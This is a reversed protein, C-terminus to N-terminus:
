LSATVTMRRSDNVLLERWHKDPQYEPALKWMEAIAAVDDRQEVTRRLNDIAWELDDQSSSSGRFIKIKEHFTPMADEAELSLEENLKEGPRLGVFRIEIDEDPEHGSLRIMNAALDAIKVPQGMDLVFIESGKGMTSAQLVLEVAENTTMFYRKIEPHTVTVPGGAAIQQKFIPIVSGNSGLVNGFRVAVFKTGTGEEPVPRSAIILEAIRKTLGMINTPNVAKDSSIMVFHSVGGRTAADVLNWTGLINNKIAELPHAEMMPVHKYAAAHFIYEVRNKSIIEDVRTKDRIDAIELHLNLNPYRGTLELEIRFLDSEAQDVTVLRAPEFRAIQRCLESGISGGAGTVMVVKDRLFASISSFDLHVQNRGLLDELSVDRIQTMLVKGSILEGMGPVTKFPIGAMRCNSVADQMERGSASPMAILVLQLPDGRRIYRVALRALDRGTGIVPAGMLSMGRKSRDDDLLGVVKYQLAPNAKLEKLITVAAAGAGYILVNSQKKNYTRRLIGDKYSRFLVPGSVVFLFCVLLDLCYVSRPFNRGVVVSMLITFAISATVNAWFNRHLDQIGTYRWGGRGVKALSLIPLKVLLAGGCAKLLHDMESPPILFEFRLLFASVVAGSIAVVHFLFLLVNRYRSIFRAMTM